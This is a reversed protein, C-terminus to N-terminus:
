FSNVLELLNEACKKPSLNEVIYERPKYTHLKDIFKDYTKELEDSNYFYEGCREDWYPISTAVINDYRSGYEQHMSKVNWVLLPINCSLAEETAFGQSEHADLIIGYKAHQLTNLYDTEKYKTVYNFIKYDINKKKLFNELYELEDPRRRKFYIYVQNKEGNDLPKFREIDVPFSFTKIPVISNAGKNIWVDRAWDSPQIYVANKHINNIRSLNGSPFVSFHPGFIYKIHPNKSSDIPGSPSFVIDLNNPDNPDNLKLENMLLQLGHINKHHGGGNVTIKM